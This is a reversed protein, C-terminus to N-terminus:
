SYRGTIWDAVTGALPLWQPTSGSTDALLDWGHPGSGTVFKKHVAPVSRYAAAAAPYSADSDNPSVAILTPMTLRPAAKAIDIPGWTAPGSLDVVADARTSAAAGIAISGGMSAGVLVVRRAGHARAWRVAAAAQAVTDETFADSPCSSQGFGCLAFMLARVHYQSALRDAFPWWGCEANDTQHVLVAWTTGDGVDVGPLRAGGPGKVTVM